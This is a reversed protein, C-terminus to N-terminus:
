FHWQTAMQHGGTVQWPAPSHNPYSTWTKSHLQPLSFIWGHGDRSHLLLHHPTFFGQYLEHVHIVWTEILTLPVGFVAFLMCSHPWISSSGHIVWARIVKAEWKTCIWILNTWNKKANEGLVSQENTDQTPPCPPAKRNKYWHSWKKEPGTPTRQGRQGYRFQVEMNKFEEKVNM